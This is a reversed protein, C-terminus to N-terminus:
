ISDVLICAVTGEKHPVKKTMNNSTDLCVKFTPLAKQHCSLYFALIFPAYGKAQKGVNESASKDM